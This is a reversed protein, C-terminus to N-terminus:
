DHLGFQQLRRTRRVRDDVADTDFEISAASADVDAIALRVTIRKRLATVDLNEGATRHQEAAGKQLRGTAEVLAVEQIVFVDVQGQSSGFEAM